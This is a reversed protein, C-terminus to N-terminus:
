KKANGGKSNAGSRNAKGSNGSNGGKGNTKQKGKAAAKKAGTKKTEQDSADKDSENEEEIFLKIEQRMVKKLRQANQRYRVIDSPGYASMDFASAINLSGLLRRKLDKAPTSEAGEAEDCAETDSLERMLAESAAQTDAISIPQDALMEVSDDEAVDMASSQSRGGAAETDQDASNEDRVLQGYRALKVAQINAMDWRPLTLCRQSFHTMLLNEAGMGVAMAVAESVTTHRKAIADGLLDDSHTAEHLLITPKKNGARGLTVLNTCPRTDGSYVLKWGSSHTLSLGYAWPCHIVGCTSVNTLGLDRSVKEVRMKVVSEDDDFSRSDRPASDFTMRIDHCSIFDVRALGLDQVGSFDALWAWFRAPAVITLRPPSPLSGTLKNWEHLLLIAGLHHDAHLHSIYLLRLSKVFETYSQDIRHNHRNRHPYGLFRKLLAVTSEGCDLVIGGYGKVHVINASVNRYISPVSSGTGIPCVVLENDRPQAPSSPSRPSSEASSYLTGRKAKSLVEEPPLLQRVMGTDIKPKPEVEFTMLSRPIVLNPSDIFESLPLEPKSSSQPLVYTQPDVAVMSAQIRLHRQFPNEDPVYEPASVIHHVHPPFQAAWARYREDKAVGPGLSHVVLVLRGKLSKPDVDEAPTDLYPRFRPHTIVSSIYKPSPCDVIILVRGPRPEGVCQSSHIVTGDPLTVSEGMQLKRYMPGPKLGLAQAAEVNFKGPVESALVIYCLAAPTPTTKPLISDSNHGQRTNHEPSRARKKGGEETKQLQNPEVTLNEDEFVAAPDGDRMENAGVGMDGRLIFHRTSALAHALNHGGSITLNKTGGDSLTLLMGPLGGMTEWHVRTLFINSLRSLRLKNEFSLRQVGEGCNFLYRGSNFRVLVSTSGSNHTNSNVVQVSWKM